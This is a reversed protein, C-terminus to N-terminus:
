TQSKTGISRGVPMKLVVRGSADVVEIQQRLSRAKGMRAAESLIERASEIAQRRVAAVDPLEDAEGDDPLLTGGDRVRFFYRAM